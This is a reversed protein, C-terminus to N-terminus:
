GKEIVVPLRGALTIAAGDLVLIESEDRRTFLALIDRRPVAYVAVEAVGRQVAFMGAKQPDLTYSLWDTEGPRHARYAIVVEPLRDLARLESPKMISLDRHPRNAAFLRRWLALDSWGTYSVWLTGLLYWYAYDTLADCYRAFQRIAAPTEWHRLIRNAIRADSHNYRFLPSLNLASDPM